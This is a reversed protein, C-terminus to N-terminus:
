ISDKRTKTLGALEAPGNRLLREAEGAGFKETIYASIRRFGTNRAGDTHADSAVASLLGRDLMYEAASAAREGFLGFFSGKNAQLACGHAALEDAIEPDDIICHYREPHAIVPTYGHRGAVYSASFMLGPEAGFSFEILLNKTGGLTFYRQEELDREFMQDVFVEMGTLIRVPINEQKLAHRLSSLSYSYIEPNIIERRRPYDTGFGLSHVTACIAGVGSAAARRAMGLSVEPDPSGDDLGPLIHCHIDVFEM